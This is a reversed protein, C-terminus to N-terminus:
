TVTTHCCPIWFMTFHTSIDWCRCAGYENGTGDDCSFCAVISRPLAMVILLIGISISTVAFPALMAGYTMRDFMAGGRGSVHLTLSLAFWGFGILMCALASHYLWLLARRVNRHWPLVSGLGQM